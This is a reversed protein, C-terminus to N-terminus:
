GPFLASTWGEVVRRTEDEVVEGVAANLTLTISKSSLSFSRENDHNRM